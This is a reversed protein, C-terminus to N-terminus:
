QPGAAYLALMDSEPMTGSYFRVDDVDMTIRSACASTSWCHRNLRLYRKGSECFDIGSGDPTTAGTPTGKGSADVWHTTFATSACLDGEIHIVYLVFDSMADTNGTYAAM